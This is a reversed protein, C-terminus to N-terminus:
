SVFSGSIIFISLACSPYPSENKLSSTPSTAVGVTAATAASFGAATVGAEVLFPVVIAM